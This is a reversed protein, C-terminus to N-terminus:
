AERFPMGFARLLERAEDDNRTSTVVTVDLGQTFTV